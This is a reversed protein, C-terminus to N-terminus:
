MIRQLKGGCKCRYNEPYEVVASKKQRRVERGCQECKLIYRYTPTSRLDEVGKDAYSSRSKIRYHPMLKNILEAYQKWKGTHKFCGPVTHLLEHVITDKVAQDDIADDLLSAAIQIDFVGRSVKTCLGWRAKARTNVSWNRVKGWPIRLAALERQCSRALTVLDKM